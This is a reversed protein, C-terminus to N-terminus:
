AKPQRAQTQGPLLSANLRVLQAHAQRRCRRLGHLRWRDLLRVAGPGCRGHLRSGRGSHPGHRRWLGFHAGSHLGVGLRWGQRAGGFHAQDLDCSKLGQLSPLSQRRRLCLLQPLFGLALCDFALLSRKLLGRSPSRCLCRQRLSLQGFLLHGLLFRRLLLRHALGARPKLRSPLLGCLDFRGAQLGLPLLGQLLFGDSLLGHFPFCSPLFGSPQRGRLFGGRAGFGGALLALAQQHSLLLCQFCLGHPLFGQAQVGRPFFRHFQFRGSLGRGPLFCDPLLREPLIRKKSLQRLGIGRSLGGLELFRRTFVDSALLRRSGFCLPLGLGSGVCLSAFFRGPLLRRALFRSALLNLLDFCLPM